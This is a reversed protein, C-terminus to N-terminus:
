LGKGSLEKIEFEHSVKVQGDKPLEKNKIAILTQLQSHDVDMLKEGRNQPRLTEKLSPLVAWVETESL